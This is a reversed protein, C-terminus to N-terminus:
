PPIKGMKGMKEYTAAVDSTRFQPESVPRGRKHREKPNSFGALVSQVEMCVSAWQQGESREKGKRTATM